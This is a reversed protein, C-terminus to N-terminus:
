ELVSTAIEAPNLSGEQLVGWARFPSFTAMLASNSERLSDRIGPTLHLTLCELDDEQEAMVCRAGIPNTTMLAWPQVALKGDLLLGFVFTYLFAMVGVVLVALLLARCTYEGVPMTRAGHVRTLHIQALVLVATRLFAYAVFRVYMYNAPAALVRPSITFVYYWISFSADVAFSVWAWRGVLKLCRISFLPSSLRPPAAEFRERTRRNILSTYLVEDLQFVFGIAVSNLVIEQANTSSAFNGAAGVTAFMPILVGRCLHLAQLYLCLSFKGMGAAFRALGGRSEVVSSPYLLLQEFPGATILTGETDDKIVIALLLISACSCLLQVVTAGTSVDSSDGMSVFSEPYFLSIHVHDFFGPLMLTKLQMMQSADMYGFAYILQVCILFLLISLKWVLAGMQNGKEVCQFVGEICFSWINAIDSADASDYTEGAGETAHSSRDPTLMREALKAKLENFQKQWDEQVKDLARNVYVRSRRSSVAFGRRFVKAKQWKSPNKANRMNGDADLRM